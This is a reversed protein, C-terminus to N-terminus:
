AQSGAFERTNFDNIVNQFTARSEEDLPLFSYSVNDQGKCVVMAKQRISVLQDRLHFKMEVDMEQGLNIPRADAYVRLGGPSWDLM